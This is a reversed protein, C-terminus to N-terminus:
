VHVQRRTIGRYRVLRRQHREQTHPATPLVACEAAYAVDAWASIAANMHVNDNESLAHCHVFPDAIILGIKNAKAQEILATRDPFFIKDM